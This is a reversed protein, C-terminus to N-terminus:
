FAEKLHKIAEYNFVPGDQCCYLNQIQCHGCKGVGCKMHRELSILIHSEPINRSLLEKIAPKYVAPPGVLAVFTREPDIRVGPILTTIIGVKGTWDPTAQDVISEFYVDNQKKWDNIEDLFLMTDPSRCGYLIHVKGFDERNGFAYRILSRLPAIGLGCAIILLDNGELMRIPFGKGFPGRIGIV